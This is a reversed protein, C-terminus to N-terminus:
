MELTNAVVVVMIMVLFTGCITVFLILFRGLPTHPFYDGYGVTTITSVILWLSNPFNNVINITGPISYISLYRESLYLSYGFFGTVVIFFFGILLLPNDKYLCKISFFTDTRFSYM